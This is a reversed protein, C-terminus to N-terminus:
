NSTFNSTLLEGFWQRYFKDSSKNLGLEARTKDFCLRMQGAAEPALGFVLATNAHFVTPKM